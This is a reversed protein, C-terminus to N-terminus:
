ELVTEQQASENDEDEGREKSGGNGNGEQRRTAKEKDGGKVLVSGDM